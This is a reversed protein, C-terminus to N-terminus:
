TMGHMGEAAEVFSVCRLLTAMSVPQLVLVLRFVCLVDSSLSSPPRSRAGGAAPLTYRRSLTAEKSNLGGKGNDCVCLFGINKM